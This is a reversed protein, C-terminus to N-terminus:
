AGRIRRWDAGPVTHFRRDSPRRGTQRWPLHKRSNGGEGACFTPAPSFVAHGSMWTDRCSRSMRRHSKGNKQEAEGVTRKKGTEERIILVDDRGCGIIEAGVCHVTHDDADVEGHHSVQISISFCKKHCQLTNQACAARLAPLPLTQCGSHLFSRFTEKETPFAKREKRQSKRAATSYTIVFHNRHIFMRKSPTKRM